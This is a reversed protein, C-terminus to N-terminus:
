VCRSCNVKVKSFLVLVQLCLKLDQTQSFKQLDNNLTEDQQSYIMKRKKHPLALQSAPSVSISIKCQTKLIDILFYINPKRINVIKKLRSHWDQIANNTM